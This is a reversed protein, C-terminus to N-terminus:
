GFWSYAVCTPTNRKEWRKSVILGKNTEPHLIYLNYIIRINNICLLICLLANVVIISVM